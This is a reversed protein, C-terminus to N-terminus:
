LFGINDYHYQMNTYFQVFAFIFLAYSMEELTSKEIAHFPSLARVLEPCTKVFITYLQYFEQNWILIEWFKSSFFLVIKM